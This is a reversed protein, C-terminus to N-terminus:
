RRLANAVIQACQARTLLNKPYFRGDSMGSILGASYMQLVGDKAYESIDNEDTPGGSPEDFSEGVHKLTRWILVAADERTITVDPLFKGDSGQVVGSGGAAAAYPAYWAGSAVDTFVSQEDSRLSFAECLIKVFEARTIGDEPAFSGDPRGSVIGRDSLYTIAENAWHSQSVDPFSQPKVMVPEDPQVVAPTGGGKGGGGSSGGGNWGSSDGSSGGGVPSYGDIATKLEALSGYLKGAVLECIEEQYSSSPYKSDALERLYVDAELYNRVHYVGYLISMDYLRELLTDFDTWSESLVAAGTADPDADYELLLVGRADLKRASLETTLSDCLAKDFRQNELYKLLYAAADFERVNYDAGALLKAVQSKGGSSIGKYIDYIKEVETDAKDSYLKLVNVFGPLDMVPPVLAKEAEHMYLYEAANGSRPIVEVRYSGRSLEPLIIAGRGRENLPICAAYALMNSVDETGAKALVDTRTYVRSDCVTPDSADSEHGYIVVSALEEAQGSVYLKGDSVYIGEQANEAGVSESPVNGATKRRGVAKLTDEVLLVVAAGDFGTVDETWTESDGHFEIKELMTKKLVGNQYLMAAAYVNSGGLSNQVQTTLIGGSLEVTYVDKVFVPASEAAMSIKRGDSATVSYKVYQGALSEDPTWKAGSGVKTYGSNETKSAYWTVEASKEEADWPSYYTYEATLEQGVAYIGGIKANYVFPETPNMSSYILDDIVAGRVVMRLLAGQPLEGESALRGGYFAKYEGTLTNVRIVTKAASQTTESLVAASGSETELMVEPAGDADFTLLMDGTSSGLSFVAEGATADLAQNLIVASGSEMGTEGDGFHLELGEARQMVIEKELGYTESRATVTIDGGGAPVYLKGDSITVGAGEYDVENEFPYQGLYVASDLPLVAEARSETYYLTEPFHDPLAAIQRSGNYLAVNDIGMGVYNYGFGSMTHRQGSIVKRNNVYLDLQQNLNDVEVRVSFWEDLPVADVLQPEANTAGSADMCNYIGATENDLLKYRFDLTAQDLSDNSGNFVMFLTQYANDPNYQAMVNSEAMMDAEYTTVGSKYLEAAVDTDFQPMLRFNSGTASWIGWGLASVYQNGNKDKRVTATQPEAARKGNGFRFIYDNWTPTGQMRDNPASGEVQNEFDLWAREYNDAWNYLKDMVTVDKEALVGGHEDVAQVTFTGSKTEGPLLLGGDPMIRVGGPAGSLRWYVEDTEGGSLEYGIRALRGEPARCILSNGIIEGAASVRGAPFVAMALTVTLGLGLLKGVTKKM